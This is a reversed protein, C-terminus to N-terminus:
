DARERKYSRLVRKHMLIDIISAEATYCVKKGVMVELQSGHTKRRAALLMAVVEARANYCSVHSMAKGFTISHGRGAVAILSERNGDRMASNEFRCRGKKPNCIQTQTSRMACNRNQTNAQYLSSNNSSKRSEACAIAAKRPCDVHVILPLLMIQWPRGWWRAILASHRVKWRRWRTLLHIHRWRWWCGVLIRSSSDHAVRSSPILSMPPRPDTM